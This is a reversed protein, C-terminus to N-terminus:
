CYKAILERCLEVYRICNNPNNMITHNDKMILELNCDKAVLITETLSKRMLEEDLKEAALWVSPPKKSFVFRNGMKEAMVRDNSWASVSIRRLRPIDKIVDWREDLPECCGYCNLGFRELLSLQYPFIFEAFMQPSVGITEQSESLGWIDSLLPPNGTKLEHTFGYGGTGVYLDNNNNCLLGGNQVFDFKNQFEDRLFVMLKHIMDPNEIFGCLMNEMGILFILDSTMGTSNWWMTELRVDLIDKFLESAQSFFDDTEKQRIDYTSFSLKEVDEGREIAPKWVYSGTTGIGIDEKDFGRSTETFIHHVRFIPTIVKDDKMKEGWFIEKRLQFEIVRALDGECKLQDPTIIEYWGNEPDCLVMPAEGKLENHRYWKQAKPAQEPRTAIEALTKACERLIARDTNSISIGQELIINTTVKQAYYKLALGLSDGLGNGLRISKM